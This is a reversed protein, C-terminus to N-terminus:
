RQPGDAVIAFVRHPVLLPDDPFDAQLLRALEADFRSVTAPDLAAVGASARIRGCWAEPRYPVHVDYSFTELNRFGAAGLGPLWQPHMGLGGHLDWTPNYRAILRETAEVMNGPLPLWDFHAIVLRGGPALLRRVEEAARVRDFWHWCQGASVVDASQDPLGTREAPAELYNVLVGAQADLDRAQALMRGDIDVGTVLCGRRAFGRALTGTGTGLDVVVQDPRGIGCAALRDFLSDPFGARYAGYDAAAKGFNTGSVTM